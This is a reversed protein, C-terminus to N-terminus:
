AAPVIIGLGRAASAWAASSCNGSGLLPGNMRKEWRDQAHGCEKCPTTIHTGDYVYVAHDPEDYEFAHPRVELVLQRATKPRTSTTV